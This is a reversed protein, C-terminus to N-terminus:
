LDELLLCDREFKFDKSQTSYRRREFREHIETPLGGSSFLMNKAVQSVVDIGDKQITKVQEGTREAHIEALYDLAANNSRIVEWLDEIGNGLVGGFISENYGILEREINARTEDRQASEGEETKISEEKWFYDHM